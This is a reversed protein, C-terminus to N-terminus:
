SEVVHARRVGHALVIAHLANQVRTRMRGVIVTCSYPGSDRYETLCGSRQFGIRRLLQLLLPM